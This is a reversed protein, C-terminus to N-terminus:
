FYVNDSLFLYIWYFWFFSAWRVKYVSLKRCLCVNESMKPCFCINESLFLYTKLDNWVTRERKWTDFNEASTHVYRVRLFFELMCAVRKELFMRDTLHTVVIACSCRLCCLLLCRVYLLLRILWLNYIVIFLFFILNQTLSWLLVLLLLFVLDM